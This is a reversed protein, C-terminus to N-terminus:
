RERDIFIRVVFLGAPLVQLADAQMETKHWAIGTLPIAQQLMEGHQRM